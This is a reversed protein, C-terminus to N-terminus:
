RAQLGLASMARGVVVDVSETGDLDLVPYDAEAADRALLENRWLSRGMFHELMREPDPSDHTFTNARERGWLVDADPHLFVANVRHDDLARITQPRLLWWDLVAKSGRALNSRIVAEVMPWNHESTALADNVLRDLPGETFYPIHGGAPRMPFLTPHSEPTTIARAAVLVDDVTLSDAGWRRALARGLTTKGAGPPGGILVVTPEDDTPERDGTGAMWEAYLPPRLAM